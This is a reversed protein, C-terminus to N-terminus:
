KELLRALARGPRLRFSGSGQGPTPPFSAPGTRGGFEVKVWLRGRGGVQGPTGAGRSSPQGPRSQARGRPPSEPSLVTFVTGAAWAARRPGPWASGSALAAGHLVTVEQQRGQLGLGAHAGQRQGGVQLQVAPTSLPGLGLPQPRGADLLLDTGAQQLQALLWPVVPRGLRLTCGLCSSTLGAPPPRHAPRPPPLPRQARTRGQRVQESDGGACGPSRGLAPRAM